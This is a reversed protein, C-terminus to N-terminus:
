SVSRDSRRGDFISVVEREGPKSPPGMGLYFPFIGPTEEWWMSVNKSTGDGLSPLKALIPQGDRTKKRIRM